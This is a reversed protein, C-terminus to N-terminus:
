RRHLMLLVGGHGDKKVVAVEYAVGGIVITPTDTKPDAPLEAERYFVAPGSSSVGAHGEDVLQYQEDFIGNPTGTVGAASTYSTPEGLDEVLRADMAAVADRFASM